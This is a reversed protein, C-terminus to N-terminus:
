AIAPASDWIADADVLRRKSGIASLAIVHVVELPAACLDGIVTVDSIRHLESLATFAVCNQTMMGCILLQDVGDLHSAIDTEQFADAFHKTVVPADGAEALVGDRIAAGSSGAAFLGETPPLEHRVLIIRDGAERARGIAAIIRAETEAAEFLPLNGGPFYENQIDIVILARTM